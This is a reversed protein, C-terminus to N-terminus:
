IGLGAPAGGNSETKEAETMEGGGSKKVAGDVTGYTKKMNGVLTSLGAAADVVGTTKAACTKNAAVAEKAKPAADTGIKSGWAVYVLAKRLELRASKLATQTPADTKNAATVADAEKQITETASSVVKIREGGKPSKDKNEQWKKATARAKDGDAKKGGADYVFGLSNQSAIVADFTKEDMKKGLEEVGKDDNCAGPMGSTMGGSTSSSGTSGTSGGPVKDKVMGCGGLVAAVAALSLGKKMVSM